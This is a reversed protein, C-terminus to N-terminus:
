AQARISNKRLFSDLAQRSYRVAKGAKIFEPGRKESRWKALTHVSVKLYLAAEKPTKLDM